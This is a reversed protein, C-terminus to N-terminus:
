LVITRGGRAPGEQRALMELARAKASRPSTALPSDAMNMGSLNTALLEGERARLADRVALLRSRVPDNDPALATSASASASASAGAAAALPSVGRPSTPSTGFKSALLRDLRALRAQVEDLGL